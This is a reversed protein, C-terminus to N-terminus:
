KGMMKLVFFVLVALGLGGGFIWVLLAWGLAALPLIEFSMIAGKCFHTIAM